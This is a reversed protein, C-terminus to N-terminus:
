KSKADSHGDSSCIKHSPSNVHSRNMIQTEGANAGLAFELASNFGIPGALLGGFCQFFSAAFQAGAM